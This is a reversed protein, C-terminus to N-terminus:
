DLWKIFHTENPNYLDNHTPLVRCNFVYAGDNEAKITARYEFNRGEEKVLGMPFIKMQKYGYPVDQLQLTVEVKLDSSTLGGSNLDIIIERSEGASLIRYDVDFNQDNKLNLRVKDWHRQIRNKWASFQYLKTYEEQAYREGRMMIPMYFKQLYEWVMRNSGFATINSQLSMKSKKIWESSIGKKNQKYYLPVVENELINYLSESDINDQEEPNDIHRDEGIAWGNQGNYGEIWWGDLVSFNIGGNITVKQGSTGSAELPRRPTNLWVDVGTILARAIHMNYDEVFVIKGKFGDIKSFENIKTILDKGAQNAPHAKGAFLIQVPYEPNNLIKKLREPDRFLLLARKYPAFRRAFGITLMNTHFIDGPVPYGTNGDNYRNLRL